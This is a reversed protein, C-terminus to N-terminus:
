QAVETRPEIVLGTTPEIWVLHDKVERVGSVTEAAVKLAARQREDVITGWLEVIGNLVVVNVMAAPAWKQQQIISLVQERIAADDVADHPATRAMSIMAHVLNTRTVIGVVKGARMVPLRKIRRREMLEVVTDLHADEEVTAVDTTMVEAVKRGHSRTFESALKGPGMLWELLRPRKRETQTEARRLFDGESIMGVLNGANDIVPLGSIQHQLMRHAAQLVTDDPSVSIITRTMVDGVKM